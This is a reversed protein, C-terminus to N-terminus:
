QYRNNTATRLLPELVVASFEPNDAIAWRCRNLFWLQHCNCILHCEKYYHVCFCDPWWKRWTLSVLVSGHRPWECRSAPASRTGCWSTSGPGSCPTPVQSNARADVCALSIPRRVQGYCSVRRMRRTTKPHIQALPLLLSHTSQKKHPSVRLIHVHSLCPRRRFHFNHRVNRSKEEV